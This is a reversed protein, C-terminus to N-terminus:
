ARLRRLSAEFIEPDKEVVIFKRDLARAAFATMFSGAFPDLVVEGPHTHMGIIVEHLRQPKQVPHVKGKFLEPIDTWVNTRRLYESKAPYKESFGAYGRKKDLLPVNFLRPRKPDGRVLYVLEERTFLLRTATGYARKKAWTIVDGITFHTRNEVDSLFRFFPRFNPRGVGGWIYTAGGPANMEFCAEAWSFMWEAFAKDDKGVRDWKDSLINGYPPDCLILPLPVDAYACIRALVEEDPFSGEICLGGAVEEARM